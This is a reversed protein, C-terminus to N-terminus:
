HRGPARAFQGFGDSDFSKTAALQRGCSTLFVDTPLNISPKPRRFQFHRFKHRGPVDTRLLPGFSVRQNAVALDTLLNWNTVAWATVFSQRVQAVSVVEAMHLSPKPRWLNQRM